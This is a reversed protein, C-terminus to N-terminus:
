SGFRILFEGFEGRPAEWNVKADQVFAGRPGRRLERLFQELMSRDGEAIVEVEGTPLNRVYGTARYHAARAEAFARFGVM